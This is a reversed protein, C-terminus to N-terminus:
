AGLLAAIRERADELAQRAKRGAHHASSPNGRPAARMAEAAEPLLPTTANHDLDIFAMGSNYHGAFPGQTPRTKQQRSQRSKAPLRAVM